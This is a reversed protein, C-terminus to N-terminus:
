TVKRENMREKGEYGHVGQEPEDGLIQGIPTIEQHPIIPFLESFRACRRTM